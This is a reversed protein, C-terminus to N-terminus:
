VCEGGEREQGGVREEGNVKGEDFKKFLVVQGESAGHKAALAAPAEGFPKSTKMAAKRYATYLDGESSSFFSVVAVPNNALFADLAAEDALQLLSSLVGTLL